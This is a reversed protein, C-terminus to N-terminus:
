KGCFANVDVLQRGATKSESDLVSTVSGPESRVVRVRRRSVTAM